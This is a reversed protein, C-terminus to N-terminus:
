ILFEGFVIGDVASVSQFEERLVFFEGHDVGGVVIDYWRFAGLHERFLDAAWDFPDGIDVVVREELMKGVGHGVDAKEESLVKGCCFSM